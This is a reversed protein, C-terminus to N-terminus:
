PWTHAHCSLMAEAEAQEGGCRLQQLVNVQEFQSPKNFSNPKICRIYHPEMQCSLFSLLIPINLFNDRGLYYAHFDTM